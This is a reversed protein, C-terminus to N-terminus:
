RRSSHWPYTLPWELIQCGVLTVFATLIHSDLNIGALVNKPLNIKLGCIVEFFKLIFLINVFFILMNNWSSSQTM